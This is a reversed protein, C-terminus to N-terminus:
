RREACRMQHVTRFAIERLKAAVVPRIGLDQAARENPGLERPDRQTVATFITLAELYYGETSAHYHDGAWLDIQGPAIGDYPNPDAIGREVACNFAQGVPIVRRISPVLAHVRDDARWLDLAM